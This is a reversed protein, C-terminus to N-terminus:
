GKIEKGIVVDAKKGKLDPFILLTRSIALLTWSIGIIAVTFKVQFWYCYM